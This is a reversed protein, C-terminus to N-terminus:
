PALVARTSFTSEVGELSNSYVYGNRGGFYFVGAGSDFNYDNGRTFWSYNSYVFYTYDSYWGGYSDGFTSLTEKTADGLKGRSHTLYDTDYTYKDYYKADITSSFGSSSSYFTGNSDVMNGMVYELSGGSM